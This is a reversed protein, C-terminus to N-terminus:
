IQTLLPIVTSKSVFILVLGGLQFCQYINKVLIGPVVTLLLYSRGNRCGGVM